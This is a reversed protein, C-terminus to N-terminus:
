RHLRQIRLYGVTEGVWQRSDWVMGDSGVWYLNTFNRPGELEYCSERMRTTSHRMQLVVRAEAGEPVLECFFRERRISEDGAIYRLDRGYRAARRAPLAQELGDTTASLLDPGLGRTSFLAGEKLTVTVGNLTIWTDANRNQGFRIATAQDGSIEVDILILPVDAQEVQARSVVPRPQPEAPTLSSGITRLSSLLVSNISTDVPANTCASLLGALLTALGLRRM